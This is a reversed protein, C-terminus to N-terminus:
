STISQSYQPAAKPVYRTINNLQGSKNCKPCKKPTKIAKIVNDCEYCLWWSQKFM